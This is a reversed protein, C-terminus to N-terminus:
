RRTFNFSLNEVHEVGDFVIYELNKISKFTCTGLYENGRDHQEFFLEINADSKDVKALGHLSFPVEKMEPDIDYVITRKIVNQNVLKIIIENANEINQESIIKCQDQEKMNEGSFTANFIGFNYSHGLITINTESNIDKPLKLVTEMSSSLPKMEIQTVFFMNFIAITKLLDM